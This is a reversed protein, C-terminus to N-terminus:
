NYGFYFADTGELYYADVAPVYFNSFTKVGAAKLAENVPLDPMEVLFRYYPLFYEQHYNTVYVIEVAAIRPDAPLKETSVSGYEGALLKEKAEEKTILPYDGVKEAFVLRDYVRIGYLGSATESHAPMIWGMRFFFNEMAEVPDSARQYCYFTENLNGYLDYNRHRCVAPDDTGIFGSFRKAIELLKGDSVNRGTGLRNDEPLEYDKAAFWVVTGERDAQLIGVSTEVRLSWPVDASSRGRQGPDLEDLIMGNDTEIRDRDAETGLAAAAKLIKQVMEEVTLGYAGTGITHYIGSKYVPLTDNLLFSGWPGATSHDAASRLWLSDDGSESVLPSLAIKPLDPYLAPDKTQESESPTSESFATPRDTRGSETPRLSGTESSDATRDTPATPGPEKPRTLAFALLGGALLVLAAPVAIWRRAGYSLGSRGSNLKEEKESATRVAGNERLLDELIRDSDTEPM